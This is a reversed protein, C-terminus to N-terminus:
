KRYPDGEFGLELMEEPSRLFPNSTHDLSRAFDLALQESETKTISIEPDLMQRSIPSGCKVDVPEHYHKTLKQIAEKRWDRFVKPKPLVYEVLNSMFMVDNACDGALENRADDISECVKSVAIRLPGGDKGKFGLTSVPMSDFYRWDAISAWAAELFNKYVDIDKYSIFRGAIWEACGINLAVMARLSLDLVQNSLRPVDKCYHKAPAEDDWDYTPKLSGLNANEIYKPLILVMFLVEIRFFSNYM